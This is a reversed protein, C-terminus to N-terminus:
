GLGFSATEFKETAVTDIPPLSNPTEKVATTSPQGSGLAMTGPLAVTLMTIFIMFLTVRHSKNQPKHQMPTIRMEMDVNIYIRLILMIKIVVAVM